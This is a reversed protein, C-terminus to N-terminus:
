NTPFSDGVVDKFKGADCLDCTGESGASCGIREVPSIGIVKAARLASPTAITSASSASCPASTFATSIRVRREAAAERALAEMGRM